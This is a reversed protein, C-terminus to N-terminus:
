AIIQLIINVIRLGVRNDTAWYIVFSNPLTAMTSGIDIQSSISDSKKFAVFHSPVVCIYSLYEFHTQIVEMFVKFKEEAHKM